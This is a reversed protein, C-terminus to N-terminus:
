KRSVSWDGECKVSLVYVGTEPVIISKKEKHPGTCSMLKELMEGDTKVLSASFDSNGSYIIEFDAIGQRLDILESKDGSFTLGMRYQNEPAVPTNVVPNNAINNTRSHRYSFIGLIGFIVIILGLFAIYKFAFDLKKLM